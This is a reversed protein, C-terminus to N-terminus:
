VFISSDRLKKLAYSDRCFYLRLLINRSTHRFFKQLTIYKLLLKRYNYTNWFYFFFEFCFSFSNRLYTTSNTLSSGSFNKYFNGLISFNKLWKWLFDKVFIDYLGWISSFNTFFNGSPAWLLFEPLPHLSGPTIIRLSLLAM